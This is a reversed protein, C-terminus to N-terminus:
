IRPAPSVKQCNKNTDKQVILHSPNRKNYHLLDHANKSSIGRAIDITSCAIKLQDQTDTSDHSTTPLVMLHISHNRNPFDLSDM